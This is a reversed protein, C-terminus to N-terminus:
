QEFMQSKIADFDYDRHPYDAFSNKKQAPKIESKDQRAWNRVACRWDKMKNKGVMWGKSTYFDVFREADVNYGHEGCYGKVDEATPPTFVERKIKKENKDNKDNKNTNRPQEEATGTSHKQQAKTTGTSHKQQEEHQGKSQYVGYKLLTLTTNHATREQSLMGDSELDDLFKSVKKRGWGWRDALKVTSTIHQGADVTILKGNMMMKAPEHNVLMLLDIWAQGRSFPKDTWLWNDLLSRHLKIWGEM